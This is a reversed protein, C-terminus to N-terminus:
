STVKWVKVIATIQFRVPFIGTWRGDFILSGGKSMWNQSVPISSYIPQNARVAQGPTSGPDIYLLDINSNNSFQYLYASWLHGSVMNVPIDFLTTNNWSIRVYETAAADAITSVAWVQIMISDTTPNLEGSAFTNRTLEVTEPNVSFFPGHSYVGGFAAVAGVLQASDGQPGQNGQATTIQRALEDYREQGYENYDASM